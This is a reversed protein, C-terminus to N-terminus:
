REQGRRVVAQIEGRSIGIDKLLRDDLDMLYNTDRRARYVRALYELMLAVTQTVARAVQTYRVTGPKQLATTRRETM